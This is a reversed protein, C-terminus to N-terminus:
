PGVNRQVLRLPSPQSTSVRKGRYQGLQSPGIKDPGVTMRGTKPGKGDGADQSATFTPHDPVTPTSIAYRGPTPALLPTQKPTLGAM